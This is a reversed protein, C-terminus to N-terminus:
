SFPKHINAKGNKTSNVNENDNGTAKINDNIIDIDKSICNNDSAFDAFIVMAEVM